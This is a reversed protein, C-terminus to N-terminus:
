QWFSNTKTNPAELVSLVFMTCSRSVTSLQHGETWLPWHKHLDESRLLEDLVVEQELM